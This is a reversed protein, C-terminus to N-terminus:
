LDSRADAQVSTCLQLVSRSHTTITITTICPPEVHPRLVELAGVVQVLALHGISITSHIAM